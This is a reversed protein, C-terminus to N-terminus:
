GNYHGQTEIKFPKLGAKVRIVNTRDFLAKAQKIDSESPESFGRQSAYQLAAAKVWNM